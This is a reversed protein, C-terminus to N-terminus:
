RSIPASPKFLGLELPLCTQKCVWVYDTCNNRCPTHSLSPILRTCLRLCELSEQTSFFLRHSWGYVSLHLVKSQCFGHGQTAWRARDSVNQLYSLSSFRNPAKRKWPQPPLRTVRKPLPYLASKHANITLTTDWLGFVKEMQPTQAKADPDTM